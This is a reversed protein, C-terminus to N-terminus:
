GTCNAVFARVLTVHRHISDHVLSPCLWGSIMELDSLRNKKKLTYHSLGFFELSPPM